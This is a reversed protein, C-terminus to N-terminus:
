AQQYMNKDENYKFIVKDEKLDKVLVAIDASSNKIIHNIRNTLM